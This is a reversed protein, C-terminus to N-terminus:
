KEKIEKIGKAGLTLDISLRKPNQFFSLPIQFTRVANDKELNYYGAVIGVYKAGESRDMTEKTAQNPQVVIRRAYTVGPDFRECELLKSLGGKEDMMQNFGNLDRLLYVCVMLSHSKEQLINLHPDSQICLDIASKEYEWKPQSKGLPFACSVISIAFVFMIMINKMM